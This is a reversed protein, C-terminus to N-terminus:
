VSPEDGLEKSVIERVLEYSFGQRCLYAMLKENDYKGRKKAVIKRIEDEDNRGNLVEDVVAACIGKKMLEMRLRKRSIGKKVFRNEVYYESFRRDDVYGNDKLRCIVDEIFGQELGKEYVKKRLYDSLERESRPRLLTWELARQYLKGFESASKFQELEDKDIVRGVKVGLEVVQSVDLSFAFKSNVYVNVREPNKLGQKLDTIKLVDGCDSVMNGRESRKGPEKSVCREKPVEDRLKYIEM